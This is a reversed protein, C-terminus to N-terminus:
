DRPSPSTYLLCGEDKSVAKPRRLILAIPSDPPVAIPEKIPDTKEVPPSLGATETRWDRLPARLPPLPKMRLTSVLNQVLEVFLRLMAALWPQVPSPSGVENAHTRVPTM